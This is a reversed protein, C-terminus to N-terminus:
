VQPAATSASRNRLLRPSVRALFDVTFGTIVGEILAIPLHAAFSVGAWLRWDQVGGAILVLSNLAVTLLVAVLGALFGARFEQTVRMERDIQKFAFVLPGVVAVSWPFLIFSSAIAAEGLGGPQNGRFLPYLAGAALAPLIMVCSNIGITSVDGHGLLFAQLVVGVCIALVARRGLLVGLLGSLLLHVSTPGIRIHILGAVFFAATLLAIRPMEEEVPYESPRSFTSMGLVLLLGAFLFGAGIWPWSVVGSSIHVAWLPMIAVM